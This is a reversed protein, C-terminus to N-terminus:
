SKGKSSWYKERRIRKIRESIAKREEETYVRKPKAEFAARREASWKPMRRGTDWKREVTHGDKFVFTLIMEANVDIHDIQDLFVADDFRELGLVEAAVIRLEEDRIGCTGCKTPHPCRWYYVTGTPSSANRQMQRRFNNGCVSCKIKTTFCSVGSRNPAHTRRYASVEARYEPTWCDKKSTNVWHQVTTHGDRFHFTLERPGTVTIHDIQDNFEQESFEEAGLAKATEDM